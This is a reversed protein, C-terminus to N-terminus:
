KKAGKALSAEVTASDQFTSGVPPRVDAQPVHCQTCFYRRTSIKDKVVGDRDLFHTNSVMEERQKSSVQVNLFQRESSGLQLDDSVRVPCPVNIREQGTNIGVLGRRAGPRLFRGLDSEPINGYTLSGDPEDLM